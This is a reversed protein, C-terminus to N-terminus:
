NYDENKLRRVKSGLIGFGEVPEVVLKLDMSIYGRGNEDFYDNLFMEAKRKLADGGEKYGLNRMLDLLKVENNGNAFLKELAEYDIKLKEKAKSTTRLKSELQEIRQELRRAREKLETNEKKLILNEVVIQAIHGKQTVLIDILEGRSINKRLQDIKNLTENEIYLTITTPNKYKRNRGM